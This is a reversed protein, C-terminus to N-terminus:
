KTLKGKLSHIRLNDKRIRRETNKNRRLWNTAGDYNCFVDVVAGYNTLHVEMQINWEAVAYSKVELWRTIGNIMKQRRETM